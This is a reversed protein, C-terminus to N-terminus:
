ANEADPIILWFICQNTCSGSLGEASIYLSLLYTGPAMEPLAYLPEAMPILGGDTQRYISWSAEYSDVFSPCTIRWAFEESYTFAPAEYRRVYEELSTFILVGDALRGNEHSYRMSEVVNHWAGDAYVEVDMNGAITDEYGWAMAGWPLLVVAALAAIFRLCKKM